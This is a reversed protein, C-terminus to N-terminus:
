RPIASSEFSKPISLLTVQRSLERQKRKAEKVPVDFLAFVGNQYAHLRAIGIVASAEPHRCGVTDVDDGEPVQRVVQM